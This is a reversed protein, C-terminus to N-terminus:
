DCTAVVWLAPNESRDGVQKCHISCKGERVTGALPSSGDDSCVLGDAFDSCASLDTCVTAAVSQQWILVLKPENVRRLKKVHGPISSTAPAPSIDERASWVLKHEEVMQKLPKTRKSHLGSVDQGSLERAKMITAAGLMRTGVYVEGALLPSVCLLVTLLVRMSMEKIDLLVM